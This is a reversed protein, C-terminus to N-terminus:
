MTIRNGMYVDLIKRKLMFGYKSQIYDNLAGIYNNQQQLLDVATISGADFRARYAEFTKMYANQRINTTNFKNWASVVDQYEVAVTQMADTEAQKRNLEAQKSAITGQKVASRTRGNNFLPMGVSIGASGNVGDSLQSAYSSFDPSHGTGAGASLKVTPMYGARAIKLDADAIEVDYRGMKLEPLTAMARDMVSEMSPLAGMVAISSSDPYVIRLDASPHMSLLGKLTILSNDRAIRTDELNNRDSALQAELLFYDSELITGAAYQAAGQAAQGASADAVALQYKLLEENGLVSLFSQLIKITLANDYQSTAYGAKEDRLRDKETAATLMGGQYLTMGANLAYNGRWAEPTSRGDSYTESLSLNLSPLRELKSQRYVEAAAEESLKMSQRTYNNGFAYGLCDELSFLYSERQQAGGASFCLCGLFIFLLRRM